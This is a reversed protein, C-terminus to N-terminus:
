SLSINWLNKLFRDKSKRRPFKCLPDLKVLTLEAERASQHELSKLIERKNEITLDKKRFYSQAKSIVTLNLVKAEIKEKVEPLDQLLRAAQIRRMASAPEYGLDQTVFDYLSPFGLRYFLKRQDVQSILEIVRLTFGQEAKAIKRIESILSDPNSDVNATKLIEKNYNNESVAEAQIGLIIRDISSKVKSERLLEM